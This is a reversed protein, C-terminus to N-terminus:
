TVRLKLIEFFNEIQLFFHLFTPPALNNANLISKLAVVTRVFSM